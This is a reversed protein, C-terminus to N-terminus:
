SCWQGNIHFTLMSSFKAWGFFGDREVKPRSNLFWIQILVTTGNTRFLQSGWGGQSRWASLPPNPIVVKGSWHSWQKLELKTKLSAGLPPVLRIRQNPRKICM